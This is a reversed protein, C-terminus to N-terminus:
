EDIIVEETIKNNEVDEEHCIRELAKVLIDELMIIVKDNIQPDENLQEIIKNFKDFNSNGYMLKINGHTKGSDYLQSTVAMVLVIDESLEISM